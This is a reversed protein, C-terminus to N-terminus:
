GHKVIVGELVNAVDECRDTAEELIDLIEKWKMIAIPDTSDEFLKRVAEQHIRDAENELRNIEVTVAAVGDRKDLARLARVIQECSEVIVRALERARPRVKPIQYTHILSASADILDIVDDLSKALEYIDERDLPTVFTKNLLEITDHTLRDGEHEMDELKKLKAESPDGAVFDRQMYSFEFDFDPFYDSRALRVQYDSETVKDAM